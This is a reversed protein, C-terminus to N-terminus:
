YRGYNEAEEKTMFFHIGPACTKWRDPDYKPEEVFEGVQYMFAYDHDSFTVEVPEGDKTIELVEAKYCRCKRCTGSSRRADEPIRLKVLCDDAWKWGIFAGEVPCVPWFGATGANAIIDSTDSELFKVGRLDTSEMRTNDLTCSYFTANRLDANYFNAGTLDCRIFVCRRLTAHNFRADRFDVSRFTEDTWDTNHLFACQLDLTDDPNKREFLLQRAKTESIRM